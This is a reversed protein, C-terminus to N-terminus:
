PPTSPFRKTIGTRGSHLNIEPEGEKDFSLTIRSGTPSRMELITRDSDAELFIHNELAENSLLMQAGSQLRNGDIVYGWAGIRAESATTPDSEFPDAYNSIFHSATRTNIVRSNPSLPAAQEIDISSRLRNLLPELRQSASVSYWFAAGSFFLSLLLAIAAPPRMNRPIVDFILWSAVQRSEQSQLFRSM